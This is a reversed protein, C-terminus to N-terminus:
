AYIGVLYHIILDVIDYVVFAFSSSSDLDYFKKQSSSSLIKYVTSIKFCWEFNEGLYSPRGLCTIKYTALTAQVANTTWVCLCSNRILRNVLKQSFDMLKWQFFNSAYWCHLNTFSKCPWWTHPKKKRNMTLHMLHYSICTSFLNIQQPNPKSAVSYRWQGESWCHIISVDVMQTWWIGYYQM